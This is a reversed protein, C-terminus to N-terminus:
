DGSMESRGIPGVDIGAVEIPTGFPGSAAKGRPMRADGEFEAEASGAFEGIPTCTVARVVAIIEAGMDPWSIANGALSPSEILSPWTTARKLQAWCSAVCPRALASSTLRWSM